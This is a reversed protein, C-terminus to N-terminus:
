RHTTGARCSAAPPPSDATATARCGYHRRVATSRRHLVLPTLSPLKLAVLPVRESAQSPHPITPPPPAATLLLKLRGHRAARPEALGASGARKAALVPRREWPEHRCHRHRAHGARRRCLELAPLSISLDKHQISLAYPGQLSWLM